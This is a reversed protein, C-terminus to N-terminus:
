GEELNKKEIFYANRDPPLKAAMRHWENAEEERGLTRLLEELNQMAGVLGGNAAKLFWEEAQSYEEEETYVDGLNNMATLHGKDAAELLLNKAEDKRGMGRLLIALNNMARVHGARVCEEYCSIAESKRGDDNFINGLNYKAEVSGADAAQRLLQQAEGVKGERFLLVGLNGQSIPDGSEAARGYWLKAEEIEGINRFLAGLNAAAAEYDSDLAKVYWAKAEETNGSGALLNGLSVMSEPVGSRASKRYLAEAEALKGEESLLNALNQMAFSVGSDIAKRYWMAAEDNRGLEHLVLGLNSMALGHGADAAKRYWGVAEDLVKKERLFNGLNYQGNTYGPIEAATRYWEEAEDFRGSERLLNALDNMAEPRRMSVAKRLWEEGEQLNGNKFLFLGLSAIQRPDGTEAGRRIISEAIQLYGSYWAVLAMSDLDELSAHSLLTPWINGVVPTGAEASFDVLYDFAEYTENGLEVICSSAGRVPLVSWALADDFTPFDARRLERADVYLTHLETLLSRTLPSIYGARRADVAANIIAGARTNQGSCASNWRQMIAPAAALYEAFGAGARQDLAAAIRPDSSRMEVARAREEATLKRDLRVIRARNLVERISRSTVTDIDPAELERRAEARLTGLVVVNSDPTCLTDLISSDLGDALLYDNIDDLWVVSNAISARADKLAHLSRVESPIVLIRDGGLRQMVEYAMRTKGAASAGEIILLGGRDFTEEIQTSSEADRRVYDPLGAHSGQPASGSQVPPHVGLALPDTCEKVRRIRDRKDHMRTNAILAEREKAPSDLWKSIKNGISSSFLAAIAGFGVLVEVVWTPWAVLKAVAAIAILIVAVIPLLRAM